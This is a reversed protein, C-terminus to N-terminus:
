GKVKKFEHGIKHKSARKKQKLPAAKMTTTVLRKIIKSKEHTPM